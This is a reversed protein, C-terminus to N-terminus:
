ANRSGNYYQGPFYKDLKKMLETGDTTGVELDRAVKEGDKTYGSTTICVAADFGRREREAYLRQVPESGVNHVWRKCQFLERCIRGNEQRSAMIDVGLDGAGGIRVVNEYGEAKLLRVILEEFETGTLTSIDVADENPKATDKREVYYKDEIVCYNLILREIESQHSEEELIQIITKPNGDCLANVLEFCIDELVFKGKRELIRRIFVPMLDYIKTYLADSDEIDLYLRNDSIQIVGADVSFYELLLRRIKENDSESALYQYRIRLDDRALKVAGSLTVCDKADLLHFYIKRVLLFEYNDNGIYWYRDKEDLKYFAAIIENMFTNTFAAQKRITPDTKVLDTQYAYEFGNKRALNVIETYTKFYKARGLKMTFFVLGKEKLVKAFHAFMNDIDKYYNGLSNKEQREEADTLVIEQDLMKRTLRYGPDYFKELWIRYLQNRELYPVQDTYPFDTYIIDAKLDPHTDIFSAYDQNYMKVEASCTGIQRSRYKRKFTRFNRYKEEFLMWVNMEQAKHGVVHYLIDTSSGYMAIRALSLASVLAQELIDREPGAELKRISDQLILLALKNRHTFIRDYRDAGTSATINIRSNVIYQARPFRDASQESLETLKDYDIAEFPKARKGCIPCKRLLKVNKGERIERNPSPHFYGAKGEAPDFLVKSIYNKRGCCKTEYLSMIESCCDNKVQEFLADLCSMDAEEFLAQVASFTYNDLETAYIAGVKNMAAFVFTGSGMFPDYLVSDKDCVTEIVKEAVGPSKRGKFNFTRRMEDPVTNPIDQINTKIQDLKERVATDIQKKM